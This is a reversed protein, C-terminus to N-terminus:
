IANPPTAHLRYTAVFVFTGDGLTADAGMYFNVNTPHLSVSECAVKYLKTQGETISAEMFNAYPFACFYSPQNGYRFQIDNGGASYAVAGRTYEGIISIIEVYYGAPAVILPITTSKLQKAQTASLAVAKTLIATSTANNIAVDLMRLANTINKTLAGTSGNNDVVGTTFKADTLNYSNPMSTFDGNSQLGVSAEIKDDQAVRAAAEVATVQTLTFKKTVSDGAIQGEFETTSAANGGSPTLDTIIKNAM